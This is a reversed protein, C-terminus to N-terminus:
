KAALLKDIAADVGPGELISKTSETWTWDERIIGKPDVLVLQPLDIKPNQPTVNLIAATTQGCDFLVPFGVRFKAVFQAVTAQTDPPVVISLVGIRGAYKTRVREINPAMSRCHGCTTQMIDILLPKGRYDLVDHLKLTADPLAFSPVRRGALPGAVSMGPLLVGAAAILQRRTM